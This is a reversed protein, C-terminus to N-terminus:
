AESVAISREMSAKKSEYEKIYLTPAPALAFGNRIAQQIMLASDSNRAIDRAVFGGDSPISVFGGDAAHGNSNVGWSKGGFLQNWNSLKGAQYADKKMIFLGEGKEAEAVYQGNVHIPTGGNSHPEGDIDYAKGGSAFKPPTPTSASNLLATAQAVAGVVTGIMSAIYGILLFPAAPGGATAAETAGAIASSISKATDIAIQIGTAVKQFAIGEATQQGAANALATFAGAISSAAQFKQEQEKKYNDADQKYLNNLSDYYDKFKFYRSNLFGADIEEQSLSYQEQLKLQLEANLRLEELAKANEDREKVLRDALRQQRKLELDADFKDLAEEQAAKIALRLDIERQSQGTITALKDEFSKELRQRDTLEFQTELADINALYKEREARLKESRARADAIAKEDQKAIEDQLQNQRNAIREQLANSEGYIKAKQFALEQLREIDKKDVAKNHDLLNDYFLVQQETGYIFDDLDSERLKAKGAITKRLQEFERDIRKTSEDLSTKELESAKKLADFREQEAKTRNKSKIILQDIQNSYGQQTLNFAQQTDNLERVVNTYDQTLSIAESISGGSVLANFAAGVANTADELGEMIPTFSKFASILLNVGAIILPLGTTALAASFGNVGGGASKFANGLDGITKVTGGLGKLESFAGVIAERYNGVNRSTNGIAAEQEKLKDSLTKITNIAAESPSKLQIYQATLQKLLDRNQQISNNAFNQKDASSKISNSYGDLVRQQAKYETQTNRIVSNLKELQKTAELDGAKSKESLEQRMKILADLEQRMAGLQNVSGEVNIEIILEEKTEAM